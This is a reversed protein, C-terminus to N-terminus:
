SQTERTEKACRILALGLAIAQQNTLHQGGPTGTDQFFVRGDGRMSPQIHIVSSNEGRVFLAQAGFHHEGKEEILDLPASM